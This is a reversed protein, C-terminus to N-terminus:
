NDSDDIEVTEPTIRLMRDCVRCKMYVIAGDPVHETIVFVADCNPCIFPLPGEVCNNM